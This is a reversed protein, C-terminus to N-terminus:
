LGGCGERAGQGKRDMPAHSLYLTLPLFAIVVPNITIRVCLPREFM